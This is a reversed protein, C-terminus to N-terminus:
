YNENHSLLNSAENLIALTKMQMTGLLLFLFLLESYFLGIYNYFFITWDVKVTFLGFM